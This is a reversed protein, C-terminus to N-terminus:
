LFRWIKFQKNKIQLLYSRDNISQIRLINKNKFLIKLQIHDIEIMDKIQNYEFYIRCTNELDEILQQNIYQMNHIKEDLQIKQINISQSSVQNM